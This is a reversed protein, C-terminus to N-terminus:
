QEDGVSEQNILTEAATKLAAVSAMKVADDIATEALLQDALATINEPTFVSEAAQTWYTQDLTSFAPTAAIEEVRLSVVMRGHGNQLRHVQQTQLVTLLSDNTLRTRVTEPLGATKTLTVAVLMLDDTQQEDVLQAQIAALVGDSDTTQSCDVTVTQWIVPAVARFQPTLTGHDDTVLYYGKAGTENAHRGQLNGAYIVWPTEQLVQRKHIHGLAWYDYHKSTLEPLSFPAYTAHPADVSAVSGHLMGIAVDVGPQRVPYDPIMDTTVARNAYSFGTIAVTTQDTTTLTQTSVTEDFAHVNPPLQLTDTTGTLYDHNGYSLYVPIKAQDLRNMQTLFAAQAGIARDQRDYVDGSILMFDIKENIADDVMRTLATFPSQYIQEWLSQPLQKLGLFPSDLHLDAAHIFKM